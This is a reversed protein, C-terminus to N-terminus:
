AASAEGLAGVLADLAALVCAGAARRVRDGVRGSAWRRTGSSGLGHLALSRRAAAEVVAAEDGVDVVLHLGAAIGRTRRSGLRALLADRRRRYRTRMRRVHRDYAGSGM